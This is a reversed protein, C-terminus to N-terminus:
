SRMSNTLHVAEQAAKQNYDLTLKKFNIADVITGIFCLGGTLLYLIGMGIHNLLFRHIGSVGIFGLLCTLLITDANKRNGNYVSIFTKFTDDDMDKTYMQLMNAEDYSINPLNNLIRQNM